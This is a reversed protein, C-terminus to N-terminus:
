CSTYLMNEWHGPVRIRTMQGTEYGKVLADSAAADHGLCYEEGTRCAVDSASAELVEETILGELNGGEDSVCLLCLFQVIKTDFRDDSREIIVVFEAFRSSLSIDHVM